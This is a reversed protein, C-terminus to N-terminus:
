RAVLVAVPLSRFLESLALKGDRPQLTRGSLADALAAGSVKVWGDQWRSAAYADANGDCLKALCRGTVVAVRRLGQRREYAIVHDACAGGADLAAYTGSTFIEPMERRLRLLRHTLALKVKGSPWRELLDPWDNDAGNLGASRAAFDVPRRNDPDVLSLDWHECGQYLDPVGPCTLKIAVQALSNLMGFRAVTAQFPLFDDLFDAAQAPEVLATLFDVCATEFAENPRAWSSVEKAERLAKVIYGRLRDKFRELAEGPEPRRGTWEAPWVGLLTQYMLYEVNRSPARRGDLEGVRGRNLEAWRAARESWASALESLVNLRARADEGRKTDHTATALMAHPWLAAREENLRHFEQLPLGFQRPDGGV